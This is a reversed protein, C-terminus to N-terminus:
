TIHRDLQGVKYDIKNEGNKVKTENGNNIFKLLPLIILFLIQM